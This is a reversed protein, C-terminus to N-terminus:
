DPKPRPIPHEDQCKLGDWNWTTVYTKREEPSIAPNWKAFLPLRAKCTREECEIWGLYAWDSVEHTMVMPGWPPNPSKRALDYNRVQKCRDCVVAVPEKDKPQNGPYEFARVLMEHPLAIPAGCGSCYLLYHMYIYRPEIPM